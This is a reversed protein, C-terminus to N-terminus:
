FFRRKFHTILPRASEDLHKALCHSCCRFCPRSAQRALIAEERLRSASRERVTALFESHEGVGNKRSHKAVMFILVTSPVPTRTNIAIPTSACCCGSGM